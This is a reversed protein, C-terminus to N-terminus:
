GYSSVLARNERTRAMLPPFGHFEVDVGLGVRQVEAEVVRGDDVGLLDGWVDDEVAVLGVFDDADFHEAERM